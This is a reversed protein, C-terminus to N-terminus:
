QGHGRGTRGPVNYLLSRCSSPRPSRRSIRRWGPRRRGTTIPRSSWPRRRGRRDQCPAGPRDGRQDGSRGAGAIVRVRGRSWDCACRRGRAQTRRSRLAPARAPRAWRARRRSRRRRDPTRALSDFAAEDVNGDRLPTILATIVGKFLPATMPFLPVKAHSPAVRATVPACLTPQRRRRGCGSSHPNRCRMIVSLEPPRGPRVPGARRLGAAVPLGQVGYAASRWSDAARASRDPCPAKGGPDPRLGAGAVDIPVWFAAAGSRRDSPGCAPRIPGARCRPRVSTTDAFQGLVLLQRRRSAGRRIVDRRAPSIPRQVTGSGAGVRGQAKKASLGGVVIWPAIARASASSCRPRRRRPGSAQDAVPPPGPREVVGVWVRM